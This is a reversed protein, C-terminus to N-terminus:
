AQLMIRELNPLKKDIHIFIVRNAIFTTLFGLLKINECDFSGVVKM